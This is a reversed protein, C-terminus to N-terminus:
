LRDLEALGFGYKGFENGNYLLYIREGVKFLHPYCIMESDWGEPSIDIGSKSDDREWNVLDNSYAYGIRYSADKNKRFGIAKRYCFLMHFTGDIEIVTPLAQCEDEDLKDKIIQKGDRVWSIGDESIAHGIKYVRQSETEEPHSIWRIGFIYWMHFVNNYKAVFPDGVLFPENLSATLIPGKGIKKFSLGDNDSLALGISTEVPVSIRRSWGGIYGMVINGNRFINLPFIGHEDFCGRDGLEIVKNKAIEIIEKLDKTFDVFLVNSLFKGTEDIERTSFFIRMRDVMELAQPSQAHTKCNNPLNYFTPDFIKGLKKWKM